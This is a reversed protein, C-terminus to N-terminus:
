YTCVICYMRFEEAQGGDSNLEYATIRGQSEFGCCSARGFLLLQSVSAIEAPHGM